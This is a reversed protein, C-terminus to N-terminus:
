SRAVRRHSRDYGRMKTNHVHLGILPVLWRETAPVARTVDAMRRSFWPLDRYEEWDDETWERKGATVEDNM